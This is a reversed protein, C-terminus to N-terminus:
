CFELPHRGWGPRESDWTRRHPKGIAFEHCAVQFVGSARTKRSKDTLRSSCTIINRTGGQGGPNCAALKSLNNLNRFDSFGQALPFKTPEPSIQAFNGRRYLIFMLTYSYQTIWYAFQIEYKSLTETFAPVSLALLSGYM